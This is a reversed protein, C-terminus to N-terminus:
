FDEASARSSWLVRSPGVGRITEDDLMDTGRAPIAVFKGGKVAPPSEPEPEASTAKDGVLADDSSDFTENASEAFNAGSSATQAVSESTGVSEALDLGSDASESSKAATESSVFVFPVAPPETPFGDPGYSVCVNYCMIILLLGGLKESLNHM